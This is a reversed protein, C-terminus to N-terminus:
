KKGYFLECYMGEYLMDCKIRHDSHCRHCLIPIGFGDCNLASGCEACLDGEVMMDAIDGM